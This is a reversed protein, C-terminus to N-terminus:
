RPQHHYSTGRTSTQKFTQRPVALYFAPQPSNYLQQQKQQTSTKLSLGLPRIFCPQNFVHQKPCLHTSTPRDKIIISKHETIISSSSTTTTATDKSSVSNEASIPKRPFRDSSQITKSLTNRLQPQPPSAHQTPCQILMSLRQCPPNKKLCTCYYLLLGLLLVLLIIFWNPWGIFSLMKSAAAISTRHLDNTQNLGFYKELIFHKSTSTIKIVKSTTFECRCRKHILPSPVIRISYFTKKAVYGQRFPASTQFLNTDTDGDNETSSAFTPSNFDLINEDSSLCTLLLQFENIIQEIFALLDSSSSDVSTTIMPYSLTIKCEALYSNNHFVSLDTQFQEYMLVILPINNGDVFNQQERQKILDLGYINVYVSSMNSKSKVNHSSCYFQVPENLKAILLFIQHFGSM